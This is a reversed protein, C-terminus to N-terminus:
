YRPSQRKEHLRKTGCKKAILEEFNLNPEDSDLRRREDQDPMLDRAQTRFKNRLECAQRAQEEIPATRDILDPITADHTIYWERGDRNTLTGQLSIIDDFDRYKLGERLIERPDGNPIQNGYKDYWEDLLEDSEGSTRRM